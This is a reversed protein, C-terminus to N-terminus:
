DKESVYRFQKEVKEFLRKYMELLNQSGNTSGGDVVIYEMDDYTQAFVSDMTKKLDQRANFCVTVVTVKM